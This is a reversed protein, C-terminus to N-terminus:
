ESPETFEGGFRSGISVLEEETPTEPEKHKSQKETHRAAAHWKWVSDNLKCEKDPRLIWEDSWEQLAKMASKLNLNFYDIPKSGDSFEIHIGFIPETEIYGLM